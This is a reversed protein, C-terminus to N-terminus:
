SPECNTAFEKSLFRSHSRQLLAPETGKGYMKGYLFRLFKTNREKDLPCRGESDFSDWVQAGWLARCGWGGGSIIKGVKALTTTGVVWNENGYGPLCLGWLLVSLLVPFSPGWLVKGPPHDSKFSFTSYTSPLLTFSVSVLLACQATVLTLPVPLAQLTPLAETPEMSCLSYPSVLISILQASLCLGPIFPRM